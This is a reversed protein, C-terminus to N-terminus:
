DDSFEERCLYYCVTAGDLNEPELGYHSALFEAQDHYNMEELKEDDEESVPNELFAVGDHIIVDRVLGQAAEIIKSNLEPYREEVVHRKYGKTDEKIIDDLIRIEEETLDVTFQGYDGMEPGCAFGLSIFAIFTKEM